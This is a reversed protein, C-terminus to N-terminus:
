RACLSIKSKIPKIFNQTYSHKLKKKFVSYVLSRIYFSFDDM